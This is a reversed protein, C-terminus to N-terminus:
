SQGLEKNDITVEVDVMAAGGSDVIRVGVTAGYDKRLIILGIGASGTEPPHAIQEAFLLEPDGGVLRTITEAVTTAQSVTVVNTTLITVCEPYERVVLRAAVAKDSSFKVANEVLENVVTSLVSGALEHDHYDHAFFRAVFNSTESCRAWEAVLALPVFSLTLEALPRNSDDAV